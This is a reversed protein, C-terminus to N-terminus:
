KKGALALAELKAQTRKIERELYSKYAPEAGVHRTPILGSALRNKYTELHKTLGKVKDQSM